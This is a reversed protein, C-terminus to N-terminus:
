TSDDPSSADESDDFRAVYRRAEEDTMNDRDLLSYIAKQAANLNRFWEGDSKMVDIQEQWGTKGLAKELLDRGREVMKDVGRHGGKVQYRHVPLKFREAIQPSSLGEVDRFVAAMVDRNANEIAARLDQGPVGYELFEVLQRSARLFTNVRKCTEEILGVQDEPPLEDFSPRHYRLLSRVFRFEHVQLSGDLSPARDQLAERLRATDIPGAELVTLLSIIATQTKLPRDLVEITRYGRLEGRSMLRGDTKLWLLQRHGDIRVPYLEGEQSAFAPRRHDKQKPPTEGDPDPEPLGVRALEALWADALGPLRPHEQAGSLYLLERPLDPHGWLDAAYPDDESAWLDDDWYGGNDAM